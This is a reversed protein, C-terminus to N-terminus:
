IMMKQKPLKLVDNFFMVEKGTKVINASYRLDYSIHKQRRYLSRIEAINDYSLVWPFPLENKIFSALAVHDSHNYYNLYLKKGEVYYPPDLYILCNNQCGNKPLTRLFDIADMNYVKIRNRYSSIKDIRDILDLRNFRADIKWTGEQNRGGIPGANLIGSRNCRNLFFTAFGVEFTEHKQANELIKKQRYWTYISAKVTKIRRKFADSEELVSKWFCYISYDADNIVIDHVYELILLNLAAGAGGAYPEIYTGNSIKNIRLIEAFYSTLNKKGGPYRLPSINRIM